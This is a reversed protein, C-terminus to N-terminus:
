VGNKANMADRLWARAFTWYRHATARSIGLTQGAEELSLGGFFHLKVLDARVRDQAAFRALAHDLALLEDEEFAGLSTAPLNDPLDIRKRAGGHRLARKRRANEILIRRMAEAAAHFFHARNAFKIEADGVLRIYADHVLATATITQDPREGSMRLRALKRLEEYVLPMLAAASHENGAAAEGLLQTLHNAPDAPMTM